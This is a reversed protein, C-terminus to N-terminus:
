RIVDGVCARQSSRDVAMVTALSDNAFHNGYGHQLTHTADISGAIRECHRVTNAPLYVLIQGIQGPFIRAGLLFQGPVNGQGYVSGSYNRGKVNVQSTSNWVYQKGINQVKITMFQWYGTGFEDSKKSYHISKVVLDSNGYETPYDEDAFASLSTFAALALIMLKKM